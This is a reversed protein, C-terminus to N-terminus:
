ICYVSFFHLSVSKMNLKTKCAQLTEGMISVLDEINKGVTVDPLLQTALTCPLEVKEDANEVAPENLLIAYSTLKRHRRPNFFPFELRELLADM